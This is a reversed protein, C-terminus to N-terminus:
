GGTRRSRRSSYAARCDAMRASAPTRRSTVIGRARGTTPRRLGATFVSASTTVASSSAAEPAGTDPGSPPPSSGAKMWYVEPLVPWGLPTRSVWSLRSALTRAIAAPRSTRGVSTPTLQSGSYWSM